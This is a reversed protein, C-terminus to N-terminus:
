SAPASPFRSGPTTPDRLHAPVLRTLQPSAVAQLLGMTKAAEIRGADVTLLVDAPSNQGENRMRELLADAGAEVVSVRIGSARTFNEILTKDADYHRASYLNITRAQARAVHPASVAGAAAGAFGLLAARRDIRIM